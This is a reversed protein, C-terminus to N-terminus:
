SPSRSGGVLTEEEERRRIILQFQAVKRSEKTGSETLRGGRSPGFCGGAEQGVMEIQGNEQMGNKSYSEWGLSPKELEEKKYQKISIHTIISTSNNNAWISVHFLSIQRFYQRTHPRRSSCFFVELNGELEKIKNFTDAKLLHAVM